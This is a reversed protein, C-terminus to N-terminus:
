EESTAADDQYKKSRTCDPRQKAQEAGPNGTASATAPNCDLHEHAFAGVCSWSRVELPRLTIWFHKLRDPLPM